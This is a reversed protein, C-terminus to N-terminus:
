AQANSQTMQNRWQEIKDEVEAKEDWGASWPDNNGSTTGSATGYYATGSNSYNPINPPTPSRHM